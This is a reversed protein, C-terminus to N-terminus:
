KKPEGYNLMWRMGFKDNCQGFTDGWFEKKPPHVVEGGASLKEFVTQLEEESSCNLCLSMTNGTTPADTGMMDSAYLVTQGDKKIEAHMIKDDAAPAKGAMPSEGISQMILEAGLAAKYFEVAEKCNGAFHLYPNLQKM